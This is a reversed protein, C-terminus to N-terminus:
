IEYSLECTGYDLSWSTAKIGALYKTEMAKKANEFAFFYKNYDEQYAKFRDNDISMNNQIMFAILNMRSSCEVDARQLIDRDEETVHIINAM